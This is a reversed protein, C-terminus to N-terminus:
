FLPPKIDMIADTAKNLRSIEDTSFINPRLSEEAFWTHIKGTPVLPCVPKFSQEVVSHQRLAVALALHWHRLILESKQIDKYRLVEIITAWVQAFQEDTMLPTENEWVIPRASSFIPPPEPAKFPWAPSRPSRFAM